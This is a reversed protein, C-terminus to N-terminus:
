LLANGDWTGICRLIRARTFSSRDATHETKYRDLQIRHIGPRYAAEAMAADNEWLTFTMGDPGVPQPGFVGHAINGASTAFWARARDVNALFDIRRPMDAKLEDPPLANYGATTLVVLPGGPDHSVPVLQFLPEFWNVEGRHAIPCLLAHWGEVAEATFPLQATLDSLVSEASNLDPYIAVGGWVDSVRTRLGTEDLLSDPGFRWLVAAGPGDVVTNHASIPTPFRVRHFTMYTVPKGSM